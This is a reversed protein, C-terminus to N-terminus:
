RDAPTKRSPRGGDAGDLLSRIEDVKREIREQGDKSEASGRHILVASLVVFSFLQLFESQWNELTARGFDVIYESVVAPEGHELRDSRYTEWQAVGQVAWSILFLVAFSIGLAFNAWIRHLHSSRREDRIGKVLAGVLLASVGVLTVLVLWLAITSM